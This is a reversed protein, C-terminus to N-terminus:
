LFPGATSESTTHVRSTGGGWRGGLVKTANSHGKAGERVAQMIAEVASGPPLSGHFRMRNSATYVGYILLAITTLTETSAIRPNVLVFTHLNCFYATDLRLM